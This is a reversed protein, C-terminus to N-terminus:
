RVLVLNFSNVHATYFKQQTTCTQPKVNSAIQVVVIPCNAQYIHNTDVMKQNHFLFGTKYDLLRLVSKVVGTHTM